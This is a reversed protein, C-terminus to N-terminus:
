DDSLASGDDENIPIGLKQQILAIRTVLRHQANRMKHHNSNAESLKTDISALQKSIVHERTAAHADLREELQKFTPRSRM